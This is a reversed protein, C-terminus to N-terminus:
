SRLARRAYVCPPRRSIPFTPYSDTTLSESYRRHLTDLDDFDNRIAASVAASSTSAAEPGLATAALGFSQPSVPIFSANTIVSFSAVHEVATVWTAAPVYSM